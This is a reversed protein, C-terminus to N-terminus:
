ASYPGPQAWKGALVPLGHPPGPHTVLIRVHLASDVRLQGLGGKITVHSLTATEIREARSSQGACLGGHRGQAELCGGGGVM